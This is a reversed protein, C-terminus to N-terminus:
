YKYIFYVAKYQYPFFALYLVIHQHETGTMDSEKCRISQLVGPKGTRLWRGSSACVWAWQTLSAMWSDWGRDDVEGGEKLRGWCWPRKWHTLEKCWTALYQLKLKLMLGELSYEPKIEGSDVLTSQSTQNGPQKLSEGSGVHQMAFCFPSSLHVDNSHLIHLLAQSTTPAWFDALKLLIVVSM